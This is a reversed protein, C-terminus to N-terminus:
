TTREKAIRDRRKMGDPSLYFFVRDPLRIDVAVIERDNLPYERDIKALYQISEKINSEPLKVRLKSDLILDWRRKSIFVAGTMRSAIEPSSSLETLLEPAHEPAGEGTLIPLNSFDLRQDVNIIKGHHDIVHLKAEKQWIAIPRHEILKIFITRPFRRQIVASRVWALSEVQTKLQEPSLSFISKGYPSGIANLIEQKSCYQQGDIIIHQVCLGMRAAADNAARASDQWLGEIKGSFIFYGGGGLFLLLFSLKLAQALLRKSQSLFSPKKQSANRQRQYNPHRKLRSM